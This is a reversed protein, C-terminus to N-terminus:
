LAVSPLPEREIPSAPRPALRAYVCLDLWAGGAWQAERLVGELQFGLREPIACSRRNGTACRIEIRHLRYHDFAIGIVARCAATVLGRGEFASDIWYGLSSSQNHRDIPHLGIAGALERDVWIGAHFGLGAAWQGTAKQIFVRTDDESRTLDVWPLYTRLRDRNREVLRHLRPADLPEFLRLESSPAVPCPFM